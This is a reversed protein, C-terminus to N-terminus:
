KKNFTERINILKKNYPKNSDVGDEFGRERRRGRARESSGGNLLFGLKLTPVHDHIKNRQWFSLCSHIQPHLQTLDTELSQNNHQLRFSPPAIIIIHFFYVETKHSSLNQSQSLSIFISWIFCLVNNM